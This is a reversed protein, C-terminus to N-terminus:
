KTPINKLIDIVMNIHNCKKFIDYAPIFFQYDEYEKLKNKLDKSDTFFIAGCERYIEKYVEISSIIPLTHLAIAELPPTGFGEYRSPSILANAKSIYEYLLNDSVHELVHIKSNNITIPYTTQLNDKNGILYLDNKGGAKLYETYADLLIDIGKNYKFNSVFIFSNSKIVKKDKHEKEYERINKTVGNYTVIIEKNKASSFLAKIRNKTFNSVTFIKKSKKIARKYFYKKIKRDIFNKTTEKIDFFVCDHIYTYIDCKISFPIIYGASLFVDCSNIRKITEKDLFLGKVSFPNTNCDIIEFRNSYSALKDKDGLLIIEYDSILNELVGKNLQGIGSYGYYRCDFVIKM